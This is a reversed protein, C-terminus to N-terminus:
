IIKGAPAQMLWVAEAAPRGLIASGKDLEISVTQDYNHKEV